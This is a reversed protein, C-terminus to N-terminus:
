GKEKKAMQDNKHLAVPLDKRVFAKERYHKAPGRNLTAMNLRAPENVCDAKDHQKQSYFMLRHHM